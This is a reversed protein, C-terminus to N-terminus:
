DELYIKWLEVEKKVNESQFIKRYPNQLIKPSYGEKDMQMRDVLYLYYKRNLEKAVEVENRSWYFSAENIYSKVEIFRDVIFSDLNNFSIIDFGANTYDESICEIKDKLPHDKLRIKEYHLVFAEGQKGAENKNDLSRNLDELSFKPKKLISDLQNVVKTKILNSFKKNIYLYDPVVKNTNDITDIEFFELSLLLNRLPSFSLKILHPKIYFCGKNHSYKLNEENIFSNIAGKEILNTLLLNFFHEKYFYSEPDKIKEPNFVDLNLKIVGLNDITIISNFQLLCLIGKISRSISYLNSNCFKILNSVNQEKGPTLVQFLVFALEEKSGLRDYKLLEETLM